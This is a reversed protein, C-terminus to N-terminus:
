GLRASSQERQREHLAVLVGTGLGIALCALAGEPWYLHEARHVLAGGVIAAVAPLAAIGLRPLVDVAVALTLVVIAWGGVTEMRAGIEFVLNVAQPRLEGPGLRDVVYGAGIGSLVDLATYATAYVYAGVAAVVVVVPNARLRGRLTLLLALPLLPFVFLAALHVTWWHHATPYALFTPHHSGLAALAVGPLAALIGLALPRAPRRVLPM